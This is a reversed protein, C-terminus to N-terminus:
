DYQGMEDLIKCAAQCLSICLAAGTGEGLRMGLDLLPELDLHAVVAQQGREVSRHAGILYPQVAPALTSAIMAAAGSIFGDVVVPVRRAAAGLMVGAMGGIEFGGVKALVDLGDASAPRHLALAQEILAVKRQLGADDIGTGRGTVEAAPRGTIAAVIASSATTNGIGMEGTAIMDVGSAIVEDAVTIGIEVATQAQERSMAPGTSVDATGPGVRRVLLDPHPPLESAMGIDVVVIRAGAHRALVNIAAKGALFHRVMELTIKPAFASVGQHAIGHDAAMVVIAPTDLRPRSVGTIGAIQISLSELRGLSGQPKSLQDQHTRAAHLAEQDLPSIAAITDALLSM